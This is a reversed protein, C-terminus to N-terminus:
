HMCQTYMGTSKQQRNWNVVLSKRYVSCTVHCVTGCHIEAIVQGKVNTFQGRKNALNVFTAEDNGKCIKLGDIIQVIRKFSTKGPLKDLVRLASTTMKNLQKGLVEVSVSGDERKWM